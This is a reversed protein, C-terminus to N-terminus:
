GRWVWWAFMAVMVAAGAVHAVTGLLLGIFTGVGVRVSEALPMSRSLEALIAGAM